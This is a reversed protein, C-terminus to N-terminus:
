NRKVGEQWCNLVADMPLNYCVGKTKNLAFLTLNIDMEADDIFRPKFLRAEEEPSHSYYSVEIRMWGLDKTDRILHEKWFKPQFIAKTNMGLNKM